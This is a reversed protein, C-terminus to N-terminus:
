ESACSSPVLRPSLRCALPRAGALATLLPIALIGGGAGTLGLAIGAEAGLLLSSLM